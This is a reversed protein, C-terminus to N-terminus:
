PDLALLSSSAGCAHTVIARQQFRRGLAAAEGPGLGLVLLSPERAGDPDPEGEFWGGPAEVWEYRGRLADRLAEQRPVDREASAPAGDPGYATLYAAHM